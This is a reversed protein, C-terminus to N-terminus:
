FNSYIFLHYLNKFFISWIARGIIKKVEINIHFIAITILNHSGALFLSLGQVFTRFFMSKQEICFDVFAFKSKQFEFSLFVLLLIVTLEATLNYRTM